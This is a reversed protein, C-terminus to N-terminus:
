LTKLLKRVYIGINTEHEDIGLKKRIESSINYHRKLQIYEGVEKGRLGIAYLCLYNIEDQTLNHDELHKIFNPHSVKFALRTSDMFSKRDQVIKELWESYPKSYNDNDSIKEALLGNLMEIREKIAHRIPEAIESQQAQLEKLKKSEEKLQSINMRLNESELLLREKDKEALIRMSKVVLYRSYLFAVFVCLIFLCCLSIWIVRDKANSKNLADIEMNHKKQAFLLDHNFLNLDTQELSDSYIKYAALAAEYDGSNELINPKISLYKLSQCVAPSVISQFLSLAKASQGVESYGNSLDLKLEDSLDEVDDFESLLQAIDEKDGFAITYSIISPILIEYLDPNSEAKSQFIDMISDARLKDANIICGNEAKSLCKINQSEYGIKDYIKAAQLNNDVFADTKYMSLYIAGQAVLLRAYTLSDTIGDHSLDVANIFAQMAKEDDGKNQFIRGQYYLTRLREDASGNDLYYDIAPQLVDFSTTDIYNKDLAMTKLLALRASEERNLGESNIGKLIILASDPKTELMNEAADLGIKTKNNSQCAFIFLALIALTFRLYKKM